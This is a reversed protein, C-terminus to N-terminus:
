HVLDRTMAEIGALTLPYMRGAMLEHILGVSGDERWSARPRPNLWAARRFHGTLRQLWVAGAEANWHEVSGGAHTIEYPSMTADGVVILKYDPGYTRLVQDTARMTEARRRNTSWLREYPCNHFYFSVLHKFEARAASFLEESARVHEDMSGGIDLLLLVKVANRREPVLRLELSGANRATDRITGPLDLETAAGERAFRRLRRLALKLSRIGLEVDSDLDRFERRDWVKVARRLRSRDQGIRVGEPNAGYAGFPSTGATGIWKSGGQHRGQQEALRQHLTELLKDFGGLTEIKALEEPGLLKEALRRLWAEPLERRDDGGPAQDAPQLGKFAEAFARDFRDLHREDKALTARALHYFDEVDYGAVGARMAQMLTLYETISVPLGERRLAEIFPAFM